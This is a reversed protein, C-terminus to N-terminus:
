VPNTNAGLMKLRLVSGERLEDKLAHKAQAPKAEVPTAAPPKQLSLVAETSTLFLDYGRGHSLFKVARDTQGKNVEFSLPLKGLRERAQSRLSENSAALSPSINAPTQEDGNGAAVFIM